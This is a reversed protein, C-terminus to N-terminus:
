KGEWRYGYGAVTKILDRDGLIKRLRYIYVHINESSGCCDAGWVEHFIEDHSLTQNKNRILVSLLGFELSTLSNPVGKVSVIRNNLDLIIDEGCVIRNLKGSRKLVKEARAILRQNDIPKMLCDEAGANLAEIESDGDEQDILCIVPIGHQDMRGMLEFGDAGLASINILALDYSPGKALIDAADEGDAFVTCDFNLKRLSVEAACSFEEDSEVLVIKNKGM